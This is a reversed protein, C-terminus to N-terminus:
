LYYEPQEPYWDFYKLCLHRLYHYLRFKYKYDRSRNDMACFYSMMYNKRETKTMIEILWNETGFDCNLDITKIRNLYKRAKRNERKSLKLSDRVDFALGEKNISTGYYTRIISTQPYISFDLVCYDYVSDEKSVPFTFRLSKDVEPKLIHQGVRLRTQIQSFWFNGVKSLGTHDFRGILTDTKGSDIYNIEKVLWKSRKKNITFLTSNEYKSHCDVGPSFDGEEETKLFVCDMSDEHLFVVKELYFTTKVTDTAQQGFCNWVLVFLLIFFSSIIKLM